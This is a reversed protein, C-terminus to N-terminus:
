NASLYEKMKRYIIQMDADNLNGPKKLAYHHSFEEDTYTSDGIVVPKSYRPRCHIHVHPDPEDNKFFDNMLCSWNCLDAGLVTKLCSEIRQIVIRLSAWEEDSLEALAGAHRKLVVICRGVYDQEDALFTAWYEDEFLIYKKDEDTLNCWKCM